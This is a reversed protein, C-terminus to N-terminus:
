TFSPFTPCSWVTDNWTMDCTMNKVYWMDYKHCMENCTVDYSIVNWRVDYWIVYWILDYCIRNKDKQVQLTQELHWRGSAMAWVMVLAIALSSVVPVVPSRPSIQNASRPSKINFPNEFHILQFFIWIKPEITNQFINNKRISNKKAM